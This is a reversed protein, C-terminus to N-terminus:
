QVPEGCAVSAKKLAAIDADLDDTM